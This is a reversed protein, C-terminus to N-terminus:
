QNHGYTIIKTIIWHGNQLKWIHVFKYTGCDQIDNEKHCFTHQGTEIAGYNNIPYVEVTEKKLQRVLIYDMKFLGQFAEMSQEYNRLGTNDQVIELDKSFFSKFVEFHRLNFAEFLLSDQYLITDYLSQDVPVYSVNASGTQQCKATECILCFVGVSILIVSATRKVNM